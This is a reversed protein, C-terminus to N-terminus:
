HPWPAPAKGLDASKLPPSCHSIEFHLRGGARGVWVTPWSNRQPSGTVAPMTQVDRRQSGHCVGTLRKDRAEEFLILPVRQPAANLPSSFFPSWCSPAPLRSCLRRKCLFLAHMEAKQDIHRQFNPDAPTGRLLQKKDRGRQEALRSELGMMSCAGLPAMSADVSSLVTLGEAKGLCRSCAAVISTKIAATLTAGSVGPGSM